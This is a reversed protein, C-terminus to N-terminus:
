RECLLDRTSQATEGGIAANIPGDFRPGEYGPPYLGTLHYAAKMCLATSKGAQNLGAFLTEHSEACIYDWQRSNPKLRGLIDSSLRRELEEELRLQELIAERSLSSTQDM